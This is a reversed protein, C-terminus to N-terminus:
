QQPSSQTDPQPKFPKFAVKGNEDHEYFEQYPDPFSKERKKPQEIITTPPTPPIFQQIPQEEVVM